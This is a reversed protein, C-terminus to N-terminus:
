LAYDALFVRFRKTGDPLLDRTVFMLAHECKLEWSEDDLKSISCQGEVAFPLDVDSFGKQRAASEVMSVAEAADVEKLNFHLRSRTSPVYAALGFSRCAWRRREKNCLAPYHMPIGSVYTSTVCVVDAGHVRGNRDYSWASVSEADVGHPLRCAEAVM